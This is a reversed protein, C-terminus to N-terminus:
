THSPLPFHQYYVPFVSSVSQFFGGIKTVYGGYQESVAFSQSLEDVYQGLATQGM